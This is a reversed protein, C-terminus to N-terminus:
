CATTTGVEDMYRKYKMIEKGEYLEVYLAIKSRVNFLTKFEIGIPCPKQIIKMKGKLHKHFAKVMSEDLCLFDGPRLAAQFKINVADLYDLIQTDKDEAASFLLWPLIEEFRFRSM